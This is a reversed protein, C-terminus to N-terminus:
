RRSYAFTDRGGGGGGLGEYRQLQRAFEGGRRAYEPDVLAPGVWEYPWTLLARWTVHYRKLEIVSPKFGTEAKFRPPHRSSANNIFGQGCM